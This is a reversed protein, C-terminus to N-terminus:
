SFLVKHVLLVRNNVDLVELVLSMRQNLTTLQIYGNFFGRNDLASIFQPQAPENELYARVQKGDPTGRTQGYIVLRYKGTGPNLQASRLWDVSASATLGVNTAAQINPITLSLQLGAGLPSPKQPQGTAAPIPSEPAAGTAGTYIFIYGSFFFLLVLLHPLIRAFVNKESMRRAIMILAILSGLMGGTIMLIKLFTIISAHIFPSLAPERSGIPIGATLSYYLKVFYKLFEYIGEGLFEHAVHCLHGALALPIFALGYHAMNESVKERSAAASLTASLAFPIIAMLIFFIYVVTHTFAESWGLSKEINLWFTLAPFQHRGMLGVLIVGFLSLSLIPQSQRWIEQLPPRLNIQVGRNDCSKICNLCMMCETSVAISAPYSFMPCGSAQETGKYCLHQGCQTQCVKKNGRVELISMTSYAGLMGALPCLYRCFTKREFLVCFLVSLGVIVVLLVGTAWPKEAVGFFEEIYDLLMFSLIVLWFDLRKFVKPVPLNFKKIRSVLDGIGAIPCVTCWVRGLLFASIPLIPFWVLWTILMGPNNGFDQLPHGEARSGGFLTFGAMVVVMFINFWIFVKPILPHRLFNRIQDNRALNIKHTEKESPVVFILDGPIIMDESSVIAARQIVNELEKINGPWTYSVLKETAERSLGSTRKGDKRSFLNLYHNALLPIDKLRQLLPPLIVIRDKLLERLEPIFKDSVEAETGTALLIVKTQAKVSAQGYVRHFWGYKLYTVLKSQQHADLQEAHAIALTGSEIMELYGVQGKMHTAEPDPEIGFIAAGVTSEELDALSIEVYPYDPHGGMKHFYRAMTKKGTGSPGMVLATKAEKALKEIRNKAEKIKRDEGIIRVDTPTIIHRLNDQRKGEQDSESQATRLKKLVMRYFAQNLEPKKQLLENLREKRLELLYLDVSAIMSLNGSEGALLAKEGFFDGPGLRDINREGGEENVEVIRIEGSYLFYMSEVLTNQALVVANKPFFRVVLNQALLIKTEQDLWNLLDSRNIFSVKDGLSIEPEKQTFLLVSDGLTIRDGSKLLMKHILQDNVQVGNTSNLDEVVYYGDEFHIEAHSRSVKEDDLVLANYNSRGISLKEQGLNFVKQNASGTVIEITPQIVDEKKLATFPKFAVTAMGDDLLPKPLGGPGPGFGGGQGVGSSFLQTQDDLPKPLPSQTHGEGKPNLRSTQDFQEQDKMFRTGTKM